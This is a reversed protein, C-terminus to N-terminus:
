IELSGEDSVDGDDSEGFNSIAVSGKEKLTKRLIKDIAELIEGRGLKSMSSHAITELGPYENQVTQTLRGIDSRSLKEAKNLIMVVHADCSALEGLMLRDLDTLGVRADIIVFILKLRDVGSLYDSIIEAFDDRKAKSRKAYGYGPLDILFYRKDVDFVNITQTRGPESSTRALNRQQALHNILSSKGVNSRGVFAIHPKKGIPLDEIKVLSKIYTAEMFALM